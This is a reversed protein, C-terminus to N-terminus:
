LKGALPNDWALDIDIEPVFMAGTVKESRSEGTSLANKIDAASVSVTRRLQCCGGM